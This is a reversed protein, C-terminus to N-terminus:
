RAGVLVYDMADRGRFYQPEQQHGLKSALEAVRAVLFDQLAMTTIPGGGDRKAAKGAIGEVVAYTFLGHGLDPRELAEQDWRAASYV